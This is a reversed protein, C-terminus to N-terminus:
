SPQLVELNLYSNTLCTDLLWYALPRWTRREGLRQVTFSARLQDAVDVLNHNSNYWDIARPIPLEKTADTGFVGRAVANNYPKKRLKVV